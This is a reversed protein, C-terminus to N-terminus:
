KGALSFEYIPRGTEVGQYGNVEGERIATMIADPIQSIQIGKQAFQSVHDAIIHALGGTTTGSELWVIRGDALKEIMLVHEPTFNVGNAKLEAVLTQTRTIEQAAKLNAVFGPVKSELKTLASSSLGEVTLM